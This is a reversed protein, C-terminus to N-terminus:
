VPGHLSHNRSVPLHQRIRDQDPELSSYCTVCLGEPHSTCLGGLAIHRYEEKSHSACLLVPSSCGDGLWSGDSGLVEVEAAELVALGECLHDQRNLFPELHQVNQVYHRLCNLIEVLAWVECWCGDFAM